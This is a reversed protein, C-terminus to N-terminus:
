RHSPARRRKGPSQGCLGNVILNALQRPLQDDAPEHTLLARLHLPGILAELALRPDTAPPLEGRAIGREIMASALEYRKQWFAGRAERVTPEDFAIAMAQALAGGLPSSLYAALESAFAALDDRVSGTDPIPLQQESYSLLAETILKERTGWRRYISTEHVGARTAVESVTLKEIGRDSLVRLTAELVLRRM